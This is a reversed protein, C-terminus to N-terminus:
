PFYRDSRPQRRTGTSLKLFDLQSVTPTFQDRVPDVPFMIVGQETHVADLKRIKQKKRLLGSADVDASGVRPNENNSFSAILGDHRRSQKKDVFCLERERHQMHPDVFSEIGYHRQMDPRPLFESPCANQPVQTSM